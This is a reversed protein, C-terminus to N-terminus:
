SHPSISVPLSLSTGHWSYHLCCVWSNKPLCLLTHFCLQQNTTLRCEEGIFQSYCGFYNLAFLKIGLTYPSTKVSLTLLKTMWLSELTFGVSRSILRNPHNLCWVLFSTWFQTNQVPRVLLARLCIYPMSSLNCREEQLAAPPPHFSLNSLNYQLAQTHYVRYSYSTACM